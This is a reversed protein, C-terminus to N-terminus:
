KVMAAELFSLRMIREGRVVSAFERIFGQKRSHVRSIDLATKEWEADRGAQLFCDRARQLNDIVAEYYKSKGANVIRLAQARAM